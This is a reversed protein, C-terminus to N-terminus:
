VTSGPTAREAALAAVAAAAGSNRAVPELIIEVNQLGLERIQEAILFRHQDSCIVIPALFPKTNVRLLTEQLLSRTSALPLLQKPASERSLPWLRVGSGGALIVPRIAM